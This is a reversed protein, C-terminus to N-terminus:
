YKEAEERTMFFHIGGECSERKFSFGNAPKVLDGVRYEFDNKGYAVKHEIYKGIKFSKKISEIAVVRARECRCKNGDNSIHILQNDFPIDLVAIYSKRTFTNPCIKSKVKKYVRLTATYPDAYAWKTYKVSITKTKKKTTM